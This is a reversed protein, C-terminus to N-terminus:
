SFPLTCKICCKCTCMFLRSGESKSYGTYLIFSKYATSILHLIIYIVSLMGRVIVLLRIECAVSEQRNQLDETDHDDGITLRPKALYLSPKARGPRALISLRFYCEGLMGCVDDLLRNRHLTGTGVTYYM